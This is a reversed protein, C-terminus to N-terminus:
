EPKVRILFDNFAFTLIDFLYWRPENGINRLKLFTKSDFFFNELCAFKSKQTHIHNSMTNRFGSEGTLKKRWIKKEEIKKRRCIKGHEFVSFFHFVRRSFIFNESQVFSPSSSSMFFLHFILLYSSFSLKFTQM